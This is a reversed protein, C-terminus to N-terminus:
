TCTNPSPWALILRTPGSPAGSRTHHSPMLRRSTRRAMRFRSPAAPRAAPVSSLSEDTFQGVLLDVCCRLPSTNYPLVLRAGRGNAQEVAMEALKTAEYTDTGYPLHPGHPETSGLPLVVVEPNFARVDDISMEELLGPFRAGAASVSQNEAM